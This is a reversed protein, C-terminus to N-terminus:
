EITLFGSRLNEAKLRLSLSVENRQVFEDGRRELVAAVLHLYMGM